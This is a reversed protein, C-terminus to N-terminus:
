LIEDGVPSSFELLFGLLPSKICGKPVFYTNYEILKVSWSVIKYAMYPKKINQRIVYNTKVILRHGKFYYSKRASTVILLVLKEIKHHKEERFLSTTGM